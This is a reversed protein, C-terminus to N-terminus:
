PIVSDWSQIRHYMNRISKHYVLVTCFLPTNVHQYAIQNRGALYVVLTLTLLGNTLIVFLTRLLRSM